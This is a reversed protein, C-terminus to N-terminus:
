RIFPWGVFQQGVVVGLPYRWCRDTRNMQNTQDHKAFGTSAAFLCLSKPHMIYLWLKHINKRCTFNIQYNIIIWIALFPEFHNLSSHCIVFVRCNKKQNHGMLIITITTISTFLSPRSHGSMSIYSIYMYITPKNGVGAFWLEHNMILCLSQRYGNIVICNQYVM